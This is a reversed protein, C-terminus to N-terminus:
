NIMNICDSITKLLQEATYPKPLFANIGTGAVKMLKDKESLGSSAIIRVEPNIKRIAKISAHGDMVPMMMDMLVVKIKDKNQAYLAVAQAGDDATLVKYGCTELTSCTVERISVEDEAILVLEGHGPSLDLKKEQAKQMETKIAPLYIKFTTGAGVEGYVNIFGGHSKVIAHSTSLGLGTGKGFEKTTFFPEFIRNLIEPPIGTGTDSATIIIYPGATAETNM